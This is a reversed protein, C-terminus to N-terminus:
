DADDKKKRGAQVSSLPYLHLLKVDRGAGVRFLV